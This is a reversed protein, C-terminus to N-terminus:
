SSVSVGMYNFGVAFYMISQPFVFVYFYDDTCLYDYCASMLLLVGMLLEHCHFRVHVLINILILM